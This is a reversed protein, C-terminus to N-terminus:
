RDTAPPPPCHPPLPDGSFAAKGCDNLQNWAYARGDPFVAIVRDVGYKVHAQGLFALAEGTELAETIAGADFCDFWGPARLPVPDDYLEYTETLYALSNEVRFCARFRIPSTDADIGRFESALIEEPLRDSVRVMTLRIGHVPAGPLPPLPAAGRDARPPAIAAVAEGTGKPQAARPATSDGAPQDPAAGEEAGTAAPSATAVEPRAPAAPAQPADGPAPTAAPGATGAARPAAADGPEPRGPAGEEAAGRPAAATTQPAPAPPLLTVEYYYARTLFYWLAVAFVAALGLLGIVVVRGSM